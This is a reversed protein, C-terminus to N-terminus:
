QVKKFTREVYARNTASILAKMASIEIDEDVGRGMFSQGMHDNLIITSVSNASIGPSESESHYSQLLLGPLRQDIARKLCALASDKGDYAERLEGQLDFFKGRLVIESRGSRKSYDYEEIVVPNRFEFYGEMVEKDTVGKRREQYLTKIFQAISAKEGDHCVYGAKEIISQAHNGGSLPGFVFTIENGIEQPDFPQYALPDTLIANTHGGSSHRAANDGTIPWHPQRPLMHNAVFNSLAQIKDLAIGTSYAVGEEGCDGFHALALIVQELAVNGAREGIGNFCGEIQTCPGLFVAALSNHLALGFDNHCHASWTVTRGAFERAIIEAHRNMMSVFYRPGQLWCGGGITDPCNIVTAGGDIAARIVDTTFDFNEGIRSYGEPSFEVEYGAQSALLCLDYTEKVLDSKKESRAGLSAEMLGPAVPLYMHVRGKGRRMTPLLVEMTKEVQERRQQCLGAIVPSDVAGSLEQAITQVISFDLKSAAPFGAELVDVRASLALQAYEINHEFSIAAGPCQQGDRLTTDFIKIQVDRKAKMVEVQYFTM